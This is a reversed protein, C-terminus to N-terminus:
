VVMRGNCALQEVLKTPMESAGAGVHIAHFPGNDPDGEWGNGVKLDVIPSEVIPRSIGYGTPKTDSRDNRKASDNDPDNIVVDVNSNNVASYSSSSSPDGSITATTTGILGRDGSKLNKRVLLDGDEKQINRRSMEVLEPLYDIGIVRIDINDRSDSTERKSNISGPNVVRGSKASSARREAMRQAMRGFCATLYGSGCGVDLIRLNEVNEIAPFLLDLMHAHMHPASITAKHGIPQPKDRYAIVKEMRSLARDSHDPVSFSSPVGCLSSSRTPTAPSSKADGANIKSATTDNKETPQSQSEQIQDDALRTEGSIEDVYAKISTAVASSSETTRRGVNWFHQKKSGSASFRGGSEDGRDNENVIDNSSAGVGSSAGASSKGGSLSRGRDEEYFEDVFKQNKEVQERWVKKDESLAYNKRDVSKMVDAVFRSNVKGARYLNDILEENSLASCRKATFM